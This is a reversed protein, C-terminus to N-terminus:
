EAVGVVRGGTVMSASRVLSPNLPSNFGEEVLIDHPTVISLNRPLTAGNRIIVIANVNDSYIYYSNWHSGATELRTVDFEIVPRGAAKPLLSGSYTQIANRTPMDANGSPRTATFTDTASDYRVQVDCQGLLKQANKAASGLNVAPPSVLEPLTAATTIQSQLVDNDVITNQMLARRAEITTTSSVAYANAADPQQKVSVTAGAGVQLRGAVTLPYSATANQTITLNGDAHTRGLDTLGPNSLTHDVTYFQSFQSLPFQRIEVQVDARQDRASRDGVSSDTTLTASQRYDFTTTAAQIGYFPDSLESLPSLANSSQTAVVSLGSSQSGYQYYPTVDGDGTLTGATAVTPLYALNASAGSAFQRAIFSRVDNTAGHIDAHAVTQHLLKSTNERWAQRTTLLGYGALGILALVLGLVAVLVSGQKSSYSHKM